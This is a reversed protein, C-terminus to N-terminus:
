VFMAIMVHLVEVMLVMAIKMANKKVLIVVLVLIVVM